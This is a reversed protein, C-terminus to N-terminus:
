AIIIGERKRIDERLKMLLIGLRNLGVAGSAQCKDCKCVGWHNDCHFNGEELYADNTALLKAKLTPDAFKKKLGEYMVKEKVVEWDPRLTVMSKGYRKARGPTSAGAVLVKEVRDNTKSAQFFHENTPYNIGNEWIVSPYFNSLFEYEGTFRDIIRM